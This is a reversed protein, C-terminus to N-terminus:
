ISNGYSMAIRGMEKERERKRERESERYVCVYMGLLISFMHECLFKYM